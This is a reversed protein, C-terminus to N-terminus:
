LSESTTFLLYRCAARAEPVLSWSYYTFLSCQLQSSDRRTSYETQALVLPPSMQIRIIAPLRDRARGSRNGELGISTDRRAIFLDLCVKDIPEIKQRCGAM